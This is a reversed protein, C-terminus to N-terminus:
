RCNPSAFRRDEIVTPVKGSRLLLGPSVNSRRPMPLVIITTSSPLFLRAAPGVRTESRDNRPLWFGGAKKYERDIQTNRIWFSPNRAPQADLKGNSLQYAKCLIEGDTGLLVAKTSTSGGPLTQDSSSWNRMAPSPRKKKRGTEAHNKFVIIKADQGGLEIVSYVEPHLNEVALAM